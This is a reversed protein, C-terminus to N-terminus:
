TVTKNSLKREKAVQQWNRGERAAGVLDWKERQRKFANICAGIM